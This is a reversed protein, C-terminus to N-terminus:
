ARDQPPSGDPAAIGERRLYDAVREAKPGRVIVLLAGSTSWAAMVDGYPPSDFDANAAEIFARAANVTKASAKGVRSQVGAASM